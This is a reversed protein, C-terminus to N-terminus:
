RCVTSNSRGSSRGSSSTSNGAVVVVVVVVEAEFVIASVVVALAVAVAVTVAIAGRVAVAAAVAGGVAIAATQEAVGVVTIAVTTADLSFLLLKELKSRFGFGLACHKLSRWTALM